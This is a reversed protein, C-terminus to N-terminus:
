YADLYCERCKDVSLFSSQQSGWDDHHFIADPKLYKCIEAAYALESYTIYDVLEHMAEPEEYFDM